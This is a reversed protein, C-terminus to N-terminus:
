KVRLTLALVRSCADIKFLLLWAGAQGAVSSAARHFCLLEERTLTGGITQRAESNVSLAELAETFFSSIVLLHQSLDSGDTRTQIPHRLSNELLVQMLAHLLGQRM